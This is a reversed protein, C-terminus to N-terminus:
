TIDMALVVVQESEKLVAAERWFGVVEEESVVDVTALLGQLGDTEQEGVFDLVWLVEENQPAVVLTRTDIPNIAEIVFTRRYKHAQTQRRSVEIADAPREYGRGRAPLRRYLMLSHFVNVSQKLQRGMAAMM